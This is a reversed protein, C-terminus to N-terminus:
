RRWRNTELRKKKALSCYYMEQVVRKEGSRKPDGYDAIELGAVADAPVVEALADCVEVVAITLAVM